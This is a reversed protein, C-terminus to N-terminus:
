RLMEPHLRLVHSNQGEVRGSIQAREPCFKAFRFKPPPPTAPPNLGTRLPTSPFRRGFRGEKRSEMTKNPERAPSRFVFNFAGRDLCARRAAACGIWDSGKGQNHEILRRDPDDSSGVYYSNDSCRLIYAYFMAIKGKSAGQFRPKSLVFNQSAMKGKSEGWVAPESLVFNRSAFNQLRPSDFGRGFLRAVRLSCAQGTGITEGPSSLAPL